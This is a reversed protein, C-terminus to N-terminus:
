DNEDKGVNKIRKRYSKKNPRDKRKGNTKGDERWDANLSQKTNYDSYTTASVNISSLVLLFLFLATLGGLKLLKSQKVM